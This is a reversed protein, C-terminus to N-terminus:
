RTAEEALMDCLETEFRYGVPALWSLMSDQHNHGDRAARVGTALVIAMTKWACFIEYWRLTAPDVHRGSLREYEAVFEGRPYLGCVYEVGDQWTSYLDQLMWGLDEHHDGLHVFEWDLLATIEGSDEDFLFNGTRYDGHVLVPEPCAPLNARLWREALAAVPMAQVADERWVRSWWNLQWRAPQYPDADPVDFSPLEASRWDHNQVRALHALFHPALKTRLEEDFSTGIGTVNPGANKAVPKIVGPVFGMIVAPRGFHEGDTDLWEVPPAPVIGAMANLAEFERRRDTECVAQLPDMRLIYRTDGGTGRLTFAFQEKSAGGGMRAVGAVTDGPRRRALFSELLTRVADDTFPTYPGARAVRERKRDLLRAIGPDMDSRDVSEQGTV